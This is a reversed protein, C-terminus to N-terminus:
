SQLRSKHITLRYGRLKEDHIRGADLDSFHTLLLRAHWEIANHIAQKEVELYRAASHRFSPRAPNGRDFDDQFCAVENRPILQGIEQSVRGFRRFRRVQRYAEVIECHGIADLYHIGHSNRAAQHHAPARGQRDPKGFASSRRCIIM